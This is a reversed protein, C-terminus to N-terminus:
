YSGPQLAPDAAPTPETDVLPAASRGFLPTPLQAYFFEEDTDPFDDHVAPLAPAPAPAAPCARDASAATLSPLTPAPAPRVADDDSSGLSAWDCDYVGGSDDGSDECHLDGSDDLSFRLPGDCCASGTGGDGSHHLDAGLPPDPRPDPRATKPARAPCWATWWRRPWWPSPEAHAMGPAM